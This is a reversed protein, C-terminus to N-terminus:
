PLPFKPLSFGRMPREKEEKLKTLSVQLTRKEEQSVALEERLRRVEERLRRSEEQAKMLEASEPFYIIVISSQIKM